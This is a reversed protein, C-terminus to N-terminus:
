PATTTLRAAIPLSGAGAGNGIQLNGSNITTGGTWDNAAGLLILPAGGKTLLGSGLKVSGTITSATSGDMSVSLNANAASGDIGNVNTFTFSSGGDAKLTVSSGLTVFGNLTLM